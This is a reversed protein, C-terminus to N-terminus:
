LAGVGVGWYDELMQLTEARPAALDDDWRFAGRSILGIELDDARTELGTVREELDAIDRDSRKKVAALERRTDCLLALLTDEGFQLSLAPQDTVTM